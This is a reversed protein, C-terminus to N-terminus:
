CSAELKRIYERAEEKTLLRPAPFSETMSIEAAELRPVVYPLLKITIELRDKVELERLKEPLFMLEDEVISKLIERVDKTIRNPTGPERGGTKIRKAM